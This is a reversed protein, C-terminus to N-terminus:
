WPEQTREDFKYYEPRATKCFLEAESMLRRVHRECHEVGFEEPLSSGTSCVVRPGLGVEEPSEHLAEVFQEHQEDSLKSLRGSRHEDYVVEEFPEDAVRELRDLWRSLWGATDGYREAVAELTAEDAELYNVTTMVRQAPKKGKVDALVQRLDDTSVDDFSAM